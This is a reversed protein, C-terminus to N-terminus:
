PNAGEGIRRMMSKLADVTFQNARPLRVTVTATNETKPADRLSVWYACHKMLLREESQELWLDLTDPVFVVVLIRPVHVDVGRLDNYNKVPLPFSFHGNRSTRRETCKLQLDVQPSRRRGHAGRAKIFWDVSDDDVNPSSTRYGAVSAVAHLYAVSFQEKRQSLDVGCRGTYAATKPVIGNNATHLGSNRKPPAHILIMM